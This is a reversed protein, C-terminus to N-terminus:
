WRPRADRGRADGAEPLAGDRRQLPERGRGGLLHGHEVLFRHAQKERVAGARGPTDALNPLGRQAAEAKWEESYGNGEFRVAATEAFVERLLDAM